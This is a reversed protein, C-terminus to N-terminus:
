DLGLTPAVESKEVSQQAEGDLFLDSSKKKGYRSQLDDSLHVEKRKKGRFQQNDLRNAMDKGRLCGRDEGVLDTNKM